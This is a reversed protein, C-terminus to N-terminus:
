PSWLSYIHRPFFSKLQAVDQYWQTASSELLGFIGTMLGRCASTWKCVWFFFFVIRCPNDIGLGLKESNANKPLYTQLNPITSKLRGLLQHTLRSWFDLHESKSRSKSFNLNPSSLNHDCSWFRRNDCRYDIIPVHEQQIRIENKTSAKTSFFNVLFSSTCDFLCLIILKKTVNPVPHKPFIQVTISAGCVGCVVTKTRRQHRAEHGPPPALPKVEPSPPPHHPTYQALFETTQDLDAIEM